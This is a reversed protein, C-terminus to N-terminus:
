QATAKPPQPRHRGPSTGSPRPIDLHGGGTLSLRLSTPTKPHSDSYFGWCSWLIVTTCLAIISLLAWADWPM